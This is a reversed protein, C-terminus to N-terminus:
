GYGLQGQVIRGPEASDLVARGAVGTWNQPCHWVRNRKTWGEEVSASRKDGQGTRRPRAQHQQHQETESQRASDQGVSSLESM